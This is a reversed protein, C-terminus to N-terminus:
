LKKTELATLSLVESSIALSLAVHKAEGLRVPNQKSDSIPLVAAHRTM